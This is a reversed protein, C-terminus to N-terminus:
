SEEKPPVLAAYQVGKPVRVEANLICSGLVSVFARLHLEHMKSAGEGKRLVSDLMWSMPGAFDGRLFVGPWDDGFQMPGSEPREPQPLHRNLITQVEVLFHLGEEPRGQQNAEAANSILAQLQKIQDLDM